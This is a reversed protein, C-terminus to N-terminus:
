ATSVSSSSPHLKKASFPEGSALRNSLTALVTRINQRTLPYGCQFADGLTKIGQMTLRKGLTGIVNEGKSQKQEYEEEIKERMEREGGTPEKGEESM